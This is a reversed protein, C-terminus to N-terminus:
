LRGIDGSSHDHTHHLPFWWRVALRGLLSVIGEIAFASLSRDSTDGIGLRKHVQSLHRQGLLFVGSRRSLAEASSTYSTETVVAAYDASYFHRAALAQQVAKNGVPNSQRKCQLVLSVRGIRAIM